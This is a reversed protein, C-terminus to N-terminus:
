NLPPWDYHMRMVDAVVNTLEAARLPKSLVSFVHAMQAARRLSDDMEGSMLICPPPAELRTFEGIAELGTLRPMHQDILVLHVLETRVIRVADTGDAATLTRYGRSEFLEGLSERLSRDDDTILLSPSDEIVQANGNERPVFNRRAFCRSWRRRYIVSKPADRCDHRVSSRHAVRNRVWYRFHGTPLSKRPKIECRCGSM